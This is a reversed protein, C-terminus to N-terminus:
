LEMESFPLYRVPEGISVSTTAEDIEILGSAARLGSVLGSGDRPYRMARQIGTEPDTECWGRLFERRDPKKRDIAFGAPMAYGTPRTWNAGILRAIMPRVYLLFCVMAAVPNGPLSVLVTDGIQGFMMPRGPKIAIQWVHANGLATMVSFLHDEEGRSAGGTTIILAHQTAAQELTERLLAADDICHGLDTVQTHARDALAMLMPKNADYVANPRFPEGAALVENGTSLIGIPLRTRVSANANGTSAIAAIDAANLVKGANAVTDGEKVDEGALRRNAGPKLGIPITVADGNRECEEQMAVTDTGDPMVAGTFIRACQGALIPGSAQDGAAIRSALQLPRGQALEAHAFAYGDVAANDHGPVPHPAVIDAALVRGALADLSVTQTATVCSLREAIRALVEHHRIRNADDFAFCDDALVRM